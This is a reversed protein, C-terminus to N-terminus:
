QLDKGLLKCIPGLESAANAAWRQIEACPWIQQYWAILRRFTLAVEVAFLLSSDLKWLELARWESAVFFYVIFPRQVLMKRGMSEAGEHM